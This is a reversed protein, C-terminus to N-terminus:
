DWQPDALHESLLAAWVVATAPLADIMGVPVDFDLIAAPASTSAVNSATIADIRRNESMAAMWRRVDLVNRDAEVVAWVQDPDFSAVLASAIAWDSADSGVGLAVVLPSESEVTAARLRRASVGTLVWPGYGTHPALRGALAVDTDPIGVRRAIVSAAAIVAEGQGAVIIVAAPDRVLEPARPVYSLVQSLTYREQTQPLKALIRRPLGLSALERLTAGTRRVVVFEAPTVTRAIIEGADGSPRVTARGGRGTRGYVGATSATTEAALQRVADLVTVFTDQETSVEGLVPGPQNWGNEVGRGVEASHRDAADAAALLADIGVATSESEAEGTGGSPGGSLGGSPGGVAAGGVGRGASASATRLGPSADDPVDVTLEFREKAFFGGVGGSRVREAKVVRARPGLEARVRIMLAELDTGELLLRKSM